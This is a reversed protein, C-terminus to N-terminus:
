CKVKNLRGSFGLFVPSGDIDIRGSSFRKTGRVKSGFRRRTGVATLQVFFSTKKTSIYLPNKIL